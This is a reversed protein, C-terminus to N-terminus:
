VPLLTFTDMRYRNQLPITDNMSFVEEVGKGKGNEQLISQLGRRSVSRIGTM